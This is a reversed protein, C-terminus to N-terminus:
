ACAIVFEVICPGSNEAEVTIDSTDLGGAPDHAQFVGQAPVLYDALVTSQTITVGDGGTATANGIYVGYVATAGGTAIGEFDKGDLAPAYVGASAVGATTNASTAATTIGTCTDNDLSINLTADNAPYAPTSTGQITHQITGKHTAVIDAGSGSITYYTSIATNAALATRVTDAWESATASAAVAVSLTIPSGTVDAATFVVEANGATGITGAATATEVQATGATWATTGTSDLDSIDVVLDATSGQILADFTIFKTASALAAPTNGKGVTVNNAINSGQPTAETRMGTFAQPSTLNM